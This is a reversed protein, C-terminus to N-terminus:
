WWSHSIPEDGGAASAAVRVVCWDPIALLSNLAALLTLFALRHAYRLQLQGGHRWLLSLWAPLTIGKFPPLALSSPPPSAACALPPLSPLSWGSLVCAACRGEAARRRWRGCQRGRLPGDRRGGREHPTIAHLPTHHRTTAHPPNPATRVGCARLQQQHLCVDHKRLCLLVSCNHVCRLAECRKPGKLASTCPRDELRLALRGLPRSPRSSYVGLQVGRYVGFDLGFDHCCCVHLMCCAVHFKGDAACAGALAETRGRAARGAAGSMMHLKVSYMNKPTYAYVDCGLPAAATGPSAGGGRFAGRM